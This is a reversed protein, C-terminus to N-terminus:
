KDEVSRLDLGLIIKEADSLDGIFRRLPLPLQKVLTPVAVIQEGKALTPHKYIDIVELDYIGQLRKECIVVINKIARASRPTMGAVYLRLVYKPGKQAHLVKELVTSDAPKQESM